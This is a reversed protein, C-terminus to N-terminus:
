RARRSMRKDIAKLTAERLSGMVKDQNGEVAREVFNNPPVRGIERGPIRMKKAFGINSSIFSMFRGRDRLRHIIHTTLRHGKEVLRWYWPGRVKASLTDGKISTNGVKIFHRLSGPHPFMTRRGKPPKGSSVPAGAKIAGSMEKAAARIGTKLSKSMIEGSLGAMERALRRMQAEFSEAM